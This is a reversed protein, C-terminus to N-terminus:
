TAPPKPETKEVPDWYRDTALAAITLVALIALQILMAEDGYARLWRYLPHGAHANAQSRVANVAQFAMYGYAFATVAFVFGAPVLLAYFPNIRKRKAPM